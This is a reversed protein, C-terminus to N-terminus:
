KLSVCRIQRWIGCVCKNLTESLTSRDQVRRLAGPRRKIYAPCVYGSLACRPLPPRGPVRRRYLASLPFPTRATRQRRPLVRLPSSRATKRHRGDRGYVSLLAAAGTVSGSKATYYFVKYYELNGIM